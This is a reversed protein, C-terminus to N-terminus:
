DVIIFGRHSNLFQLVKLGLRINSHLIAISPGLRLILILYFHSANVFLSAKLVAYGM